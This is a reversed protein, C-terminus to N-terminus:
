IIIKENEFSYKFGCVSCNCSYEVEFIGDEIGIYYDERLTEEIEIPESVEKVLAIYEESSIIGYKKEVDLLRKENIQDNKIKCKPCIAWNDASM